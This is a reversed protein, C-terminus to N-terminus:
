IPDKVNGDHVAVTLQARALALGYTGLWSVDEALRHIPDLLQRDSALGSLPSVTQRFPDPLDIVHRGKM